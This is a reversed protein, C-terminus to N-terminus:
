GAAPPGFWTTLAVALGEDTGDRVWAVHGDPRIPVASAAAVASSM